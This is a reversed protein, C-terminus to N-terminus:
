LRSRFKYAAVLLVVIVGPAVLIPVARDQLTPDFFVSVIAVGCGAVFFTWVSYVIALIGISTHDIYRGQRRLIRLFDVMFHKMVHHKRHPRSRRLAALRRRLASPRM